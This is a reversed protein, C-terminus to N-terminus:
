DIGENNDDIIETWKWENNIYKKRSTMYLSKLM